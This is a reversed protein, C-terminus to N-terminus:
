LMACARESEKKFPFFPLGSAKHAIPEGFEFGLWKLWAISKVNRADVMNRMNPYRGSLEAFLRRSEKMFVKKSRDVEDTGLLWPINWKWTEIRIGFICVPVSDILAAYCEESTLMGFYLAPYPETGAAQLEDIDTQRMHQAVFAIHEKTAQVIEVKRM